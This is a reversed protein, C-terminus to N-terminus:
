KRRLISSFQTLSSLTVARILDGESVIGILKDDDKILIQHVDHASIYRMAELITSNKGISLLPSSMIQKTTLKNPDLNVVIIRAILDTRSIIGTPIGNETVIISGIEKEIMIKAADVVIAKSEICILEKMIDSVVTPFKVFDGEDQHFDLM